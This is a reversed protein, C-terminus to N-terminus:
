EGMGGGWWELLTVPLHPISSDSHGHTRSQESFIKQVTWGKTVLSPITISWFLSSHWAFFLFSSIFFFFFAFNPQQRWPWPWLLHNYLWFIVTQVIDESLIIRKCGFKTRHYVVMFRFYQTATNSTLTVAFIWFKMSHKDPSVIGQSSNYGKTALCLITICWWSDSHRAFINNQEWWPQPWM